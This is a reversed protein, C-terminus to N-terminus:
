GQGPKAALDDTARVFQWVARRRIVSATSAGHRGSKALRDIRFTAAPLLVGRRFWRTGDLSPSDQCRWWGSAPCPIGTTAFSGLVAGPGGASNEAAAGAEMLSVAPATRPAVRRDVLKWATPTTTEYSAQLGRIKEWITQRPLLLAQPVVQGQKLYQRAGGLIGVNGGSDSCLWWGTAPCAGGATVVTGLLPPPTPAAQGTSLAAPRAPRRRISAAIKDWLDIIATEGLSSPVPQGGGALARGTEMELHITPSLADTGSGAAEWDLGYVTSFNLETVKMVLEEGPLGNLTRQGARLKRFLPRAWLPQRAETKANRELLTPWTRALGAQTNLRIAVDPHGPLAAFLAIGERDAADAPGVFIGPGFCFGTEGPQSDPSTLRLRAILKALNGAAHDPDYSEAIFNFSKGRSHVYGEVAVNEHVHRKDFEVTYSSTRGFVFIKGDFGNAHIDTAAELNKRSLQNVGSRIQAERVAIRATFAAASEDLATIDFGSVFVRELSFGADGPLDILFRGVCVTKMTKTMQAVETAGKIKGIAKSGLAAIACVALVALM